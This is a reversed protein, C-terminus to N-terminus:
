NTQATEDNEEEDDASRFGGESFAALKMASQQEEFAKLDEEGMGDQQLQYSASFGADIGARVAQFYTMKAQAREIRTEPVLPRPDISFDLDGRAYSDLNFPAFKKRHETKNAWGGKGEKLREGAIAVMMRFLSISQADYSARARQVHGRVDGMLREAAVGSIQGMSRLREYMVVEPHDHEIEAIMSAIRTEADALTLNGSITHVAVQGQVRILKLDEEGSKQGNINLATAEGDGSVIQPSKSQIKIYNHVRTAIDNLQEVKGWSRVAPAGPITGNNRHRAWVLPCFGYGEVISGQGYDYLEGDRYYRIEDKTVEKKFTYTQKDTSDYYKYEKTYSVAHGRSDFEAETIYKPPVVEPYVIGRETDDIIEVIGDGMSAGFIVWLDMGQQWNGWMWTQAIAAKLEPSTDRSLPIALMEGDPLRAGDESLVGQYVHAAYFDVLRTVPNYIGKTKPHLGANEAYSAWGSLENFASNTYISWGLSYQKLRETYLDNLVVDGPNTLAFRFARWASYTANSLTTVWSAM